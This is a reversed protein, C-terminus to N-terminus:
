SALPGYHLCTRHVLENATDEPDAYFARGYGIPSRCIRCVALVMRRTEACDRHECAAACPGLPWGLEEFGPHSAM